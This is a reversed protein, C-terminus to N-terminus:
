KEFDIHILTEILIFVYLIMWLAMGSSNSGDLIDSGDAGLSTGATIERDAEDPVTQPPSQQSSDSSLSCSHPHYQISSFISYRTHLTHLTPQLSATQEM